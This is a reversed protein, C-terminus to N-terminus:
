SQCRKEHCLRRGEGLARHVLAAKVQWGNQELRTRAVSPAAGTLACVIRVARERLKENSPNLDVMLNGIAKGTRVMSLTTLMNLILKTATGAKLRTSGTLVEPGVNPAIVVDPREGRAFRLFPNFCILVTAAGRDRARHLAGWVFPTRGSAAIGVVVDRRTVGRFLIAKAGAETDDEVDEDAAWLARHGGAMIGQVQEPPAGFTPPCESADLVGLRGSTGAGLYFLRGGRRFARVILRIAREIRVAEARLARPLRTEESIMLEIASSLSRRDLDLSRPNRQETPSQGTAEPIPCSPAPSDPSAASRTRPRRAPHPLTPVIARAHAVAGWAGERKLLRSANEPWLRRLELSVARAFTKQRHLVGGVFVFEVPRGPRTLRRACAVADAALHRVASQIASRAIPDGRAAAFVQVALAAIEDKPAQHIWTIIDNPENLQLTLLLRAGLDPWRGTLDFRRIAQQMAELAIDYGSGKDSLLHGWGGVRATQGRPNRGYCCSGTGSIVIVRTVDPASTGADAAALATELDNGAWCPVGPWATAAAAQVLRRDASERVGAMGIGLASPAPLRNALARFHSALQTPTLLRQNAPGAELRHLQRGAADAAIAVTHTGGCEIGLLITETRIGSRDQQM